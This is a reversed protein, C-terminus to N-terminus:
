SCTAKTGRLSGSRISSSGAVHVLTVVACAAVAADGIGGEDWRPFTPQMALVHRQEHPDCETVVLELRDVERTNADVAM